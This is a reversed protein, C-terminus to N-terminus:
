QFLTIKDVSINLSLFFHNSRLFIHERCSGEKFAGDDTM